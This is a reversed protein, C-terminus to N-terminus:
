VLFMHSWRCVPCWVYVSLAWVNRDDKEWGKWTEILKQRGVREDDFDSVRCRYKTCAHQLGVESECVENVCTM